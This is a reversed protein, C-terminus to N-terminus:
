PTKLIYKTKKKNEVSIKLFWSIKWDQPNKLGKLVRSYKLM